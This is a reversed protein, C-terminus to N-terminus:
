PSAYQLPLTGTAFEDHPVSLHPCNAVMKTTSDALPDIASLMFSSLDSTMSATNGDSPAGGGSRAARFFALNNALVSEAFVFGTRTLDIRAQARPGGDANPSDFAAFGAPM